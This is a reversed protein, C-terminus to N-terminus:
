AADFWLNFSVRSERRFAPYEQVRTGCKQAAGRRVKPGGNVDHAPLGAQPRPRPLVAPHQLANQLAKAFHDETVQLYHKLAIAETVQM